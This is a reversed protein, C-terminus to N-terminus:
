PPKTNAELDVFRMNAERVKAAADDYLFPLYVYRKGRTVPTAEHLLSCSFTVAGGAPAEYEQRGFEPFRLKGGEYEGTNLNLSVAFRRHATGKTTNDRHARFHGSDSGEYCAVLHREIRTTHFQFAKLIEPAQRSHVRFMAENRLSEDIIEQDRRRKRNYDYLEVTKGNVDRMFGSDRGGHQEHHAILQRCLEPEFIRPVVLIPAQVFAASPSALKPLSDLIHFLREAHAAPGDQFTLTAVVRLREDFVYTVPRYATATQDTPATGYLRSIARDFDRFFRIGPVADALRGEDTPDTTVGFLSLNEDDFDARRSLIEGLLRSSSESCGSQFFCLVVYRGGAQDFHFAPTKDTRGVFWPAPDGPQLLKRAELM